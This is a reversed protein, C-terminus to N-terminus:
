GARWRYCLAPMGEENDSSPPGAPTFGHREYLARAPRNTLFTHLRLQSGRSQAFAVLRSGHGQRQHGPAVYLQEIWDDHLVLMAVPRRHPGIVWVERTTFVADQFWDVVEADSHAPPPIDPTAAKRSRLWLDAVAESEDRRARRIQRDGWPRATM